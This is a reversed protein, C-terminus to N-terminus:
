LAPFSPALQAKRIETIEPGIAQTMSTLIQRSMSFITRTLSFVVVTAPGLIRQLLIVPLQYVLFNSSYLLGFYGSPRLVDGFRDRRAYRMRPFIAPATLRLDVLVFVCFMALMIAQQAAIWTFSLHKLAMIATAAMTTIAQINNWNTGRYSIGVVLFIGALFGYLIRALIQLGLLYVTASVTIANTKLGLWLNIPLIFVIATVLAASSIITLLLLLATSQLTHAQEIEGRNYHIAVQNNAFTQLGFNLTGLYSVTATLTLWEGYTAVGYQHLFIPPLVLQTIVNM